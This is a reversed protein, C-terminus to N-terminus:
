NQHVVIQNGLFTCKNNQELWPCLLQTQDEETKSQPLNLDQFIVFLAFGSIGSLLFCLLFQLASYRM